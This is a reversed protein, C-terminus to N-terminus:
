LNLINGGKEILIKVLEEYNIINVYDPPKGANRRIIDAEM